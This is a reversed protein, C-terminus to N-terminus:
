GTRAHHRASMRDGLEAQLERVRDVLTLASAAGLESSVTDVVVGDVDVIVSTLRGPASEIAFRRALDHNPDALVRLTMDDAETEDRVERSTAPAVALVQVRMRSFEALVEDVGLVADWGADDDIGPAFCLVVPVKGLFSDTDLTQGSSAPARFLPAFTGPPPGDGDHVQEQPTTGTM